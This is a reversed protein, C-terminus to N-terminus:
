APLTTCWRPTPATPRAAAAAGAVSAAGAGAVLAAGPLTERPGGSLAAAAALLTGGLLALIAALGRGGLKEIRALLRLRGAEVAGLPDPAFRAKLRDLAGGSDEHAALLAELESCLEPDETSIEALAVARARMGLAALRHFLNETHDWDRSQLGTEERPTCGDVSGPALFSGAGLPRFLM